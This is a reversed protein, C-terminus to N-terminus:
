VENLLLAVNATVFETSSLMARLQLACLLLALILLGLLVPPIIRRAQCLACPTAVPWTSTCAGGLSDRESPHATVRAPDDTGRGKCRRPILVPLLIVSLPPEKAQVNVTIGDNVNIADVTM